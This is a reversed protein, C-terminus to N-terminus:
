EVGRSMLERKLVVAVEHALVPDNNFSRDVVGYCLQRNVSTRVGQLDELSLKSATEKWVNLAQENKKNM